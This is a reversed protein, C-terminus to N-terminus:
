PKLRARYFRRTEAVPGSWAAATGGAMMETVTTWPGSPNVASEIQYIAEPASSWSFSFMGGTRTVNLIKPLPVARVTFTRTGSVPPTGADTARVTFTWISGLQGASPTWTLRGTAPDIAAGAPGAALSWTVTNSEVVVFNDLFVEHDLAGNAPVLALHELVGLGTASELIGNGTFARVPETALDFQLTTWTQAPVARVPVPTTGTLSSVGAFEITGTTGGDSGIAGSAATERLGLGTKLPQATWTDFFLRKRFDIVPNGTNETGATTLRLWPNVAGPLFSWQVRLARTSSNGAPPAASVTTAITKATNLFASTTSSVSPRRFVVADSTADAFAEFDAWPQSSLVSDFGTVPITLSLSDGEVVQATLQPALVPPPRYLRSAPVIEKVQSPASWRLEATADGTNEVYDMKLDYRTGAILAISGSWEALGQNTWRDILLQGNVWLRVGDDARVHFTCTQSYRPEVQGTWRVSFTDAQMTSSPSGTGWAFNIGADIRARRLATFDSNDYFTGRLGSGSGSAAATATIVLQGEASDASQGGGTVRVTYFGADSMAAGTISLSPSTVGAFRGGNTLNVGNRRWQYTLSGGTAAASFVATEGPNVTVTGPPTTIVPADPNINLFDACAKYFATAENERTAPTNMLTYETQNSIFMMEALCAPPNCTTVTFNDQKVGRNTLPYAELMRNQIDTALAQDASNGATWWFTETGHATDSSFSNCHISLFLDPDENNALNKRSTLSVDADTSRTLIVEAGAAELKSKLRQAVDLVFDEENPYAGGDIGVAGPDAGGHGADIMIKRGAFQAAAWGAPVLLVAAALIIVRISM